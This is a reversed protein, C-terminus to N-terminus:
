SFYESEKFSDTQIAEFRARKAEMLVKYEQDSIIKQRLALEFSLSRHGSQLHIKKRIKDEQLSLSRALKLKQFIDERDKPFYMNEFLRDRFDEDEMLLRALTKELAPSPSRGIPNLSLLLLLPKLCLRVWRHPYHSLIETLSGQIKSFCFELGWQAEVSLRFNMKGRKVFLKQNKVGEHWLLACAMYQSSLLDAFHGSLRGRKRLDRGFVFLNLSNLFVFLTNAWLVKRMIQRVGSFAGGRIFWPGRCLSFSLARIFHCLFHYIGSQLSASFDKFSNNELGSIIKLAFPHNRMLAQGYVIFTRSLINAGEVTIAIPQAMYLHAIKNRPGLSLGVGGMIDMGRKTLERSMETLNYKILAPILSSATTAAGRGSNLGSNLRSLSFSHSSSILHSLGAIHALNEEVGEFKGIPLKFQKRVCAYTGTLWAVRKGCASALAPLSIARGTSLTNLIMQWGGGAQKLGGILAEEAPLIVNEGKIPANYIPIGMPDHYLGKQVGKLHESILVCSIGLDKKDSLLGEPDKLQIALSILEAKPSLTIWRKEWNLRIKLTEDAEDKFLVGESQIASADSGAQAETLGFCSLTEGLALRPLHKDRQAKTGYKLLLKAPGLSNSTMVIISLPINASSLKEIIKAQAYPSFGKGKYHKPIGLGFFGEKKLFHEEQSQLKKRQIFDWERSLACISETQHNLFAQEEKSLTPPPASSFLKQFDLQGSFFEYGQEMEQGTKQEKEEMQESTEQKGVQQGQGQKQAQETEMEQGQEKETLQGQGQGQGQGQETEQEQQGNLSSYTLAEKERSSLRLSSSSSKKMWQFIAFSFALRLGLFVFLATLSLLALSVFLEEFPISNEASFAASEQLVEGKEKALLEQENSIYSFPNLPTLHRALQIIFNKSILFVFFPLSAIWFLAPSRFFLLTLFLTLFPWLGGVGSLVLFGGVFIPVVLGVISGKTFTKSISWLLTKNKLLFAM